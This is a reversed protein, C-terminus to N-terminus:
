QSFLGGWLEKLNPGSNPPRVRTKQSLLEDVEAGTLHRKTTLAGAIREVKAWNAKAMLRKEAQLQCRVIRAELISYHPAAEGAGPSWPSDISLWLWHPDEFGIWAGVTTHYTAPPQSTTKASRYAALEAIGGAAAVLQFGKRQVAEWHERLEDQTVQRYEDKGRVKIFARSTPPVPDWDVASGIGVKDAERRTMPCVDREVALNGFGLLHAMVVHGAQHYAARTKAKEPDM